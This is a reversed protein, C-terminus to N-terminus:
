GDDEDGADTLLINFRRGDKIWVMEALTGRFDYEPGVIKGGDDALMEALEEARQMITAM